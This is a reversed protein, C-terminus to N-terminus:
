RFMSYVVAEKDERRVKKIADDFDKQTVRTRKDRIAMYGAETCVNHIDAGSMEDTLKVLKDVDFEDTNMPRTHILVIDRRGKEDPLPVKILRDLRGHRVLAPDLIDPRNTAAVVKVDGLPHFGDIEALLQMFTRQVEREGSTGVEIRKAAIADVEDIFLLTPARDRALSFIDRVLKAGEGIFKQALESGVVEIFTANTANAVAKAMLTKGTGPPGHLLVGKPPTIGVERFLDPDTLPLEVVEKLERMEESLGGVDEWSIEPKEMVVFREVDFDRTGGLVDIITFNKQDVRVRDGPLVKEELGQRVTTFVEQGNSLRAVVMGNPHRESITAVLNPPALFRQIAAELEHVRNELLRTRRSQDPSEMEM